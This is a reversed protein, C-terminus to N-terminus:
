GVRAGKSLNCFAHTAQINDTTHTGGRSLPIKHDFHIGFLDFPKACIACLGNSTKLVKKYDINEVKTQQQLARRRAVYERKKIHHVSNWAKKYAKMYVSLEARKETTQRARYAKKYASIRDKNAAHYARGQARIEARNAELYAANYAKKKDKDYRDKARALQQEKHKAYLAKRKEPHALWYAKQQALIRERNAAYRIRSRANKKERNVAM